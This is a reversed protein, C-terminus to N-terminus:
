PGLDDYSSSKPIPKENREKIARWQQMVSCMLEYTKARDDMKIVSKELKELAKEMINM